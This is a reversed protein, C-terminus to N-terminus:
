IRREKRKRKKTQKFDINYLQCYTTYDYEKTQILEKQDNYEYEFVKTIQNYTYLFKKSLLGEFYFNKEQIITNKNDEFIIELM